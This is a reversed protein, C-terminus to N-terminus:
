TEVREFHGLDYPKNIDSLVKDTSGRDAWDGGWRLRIGLSAAAMMMHGALYIFEEEIDWRIHPSNTHWPAIDIADSLIPAIVNHKSDPWRKTSYGGEFAENQAAKGRAGWIITFDYVPIVEFCVQVIEDHCTELRDLSTPGFHSM